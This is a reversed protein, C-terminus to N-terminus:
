IKKNKNNIISVNGSSDIKYVKDGLNIANPLHSIQIVIKNKGLECITEQLMKENKSDLANTSEDFIYVDHDKILARAIALRQRQGGSLNGGRESLLTKYGSSTSLIFEHILALKSAKIVDDKTASPNGLKINDYFSGQFLENDQTIYAVRSRLSKKNFININENNISIKGKDIELLMLLLSAITSKGCGSPGTIVNVGRRFSLNLDRFVFKNSAWSFHVNEFKIETIKKNILLGNQLDESVKKKFIRKHVSEVNAMGQNFKMTQKSLTSFVTSLRGALVALLTFNPLTNSIQNDGKTSFLLLTIVGASVFFYRFFPSPVGKSVGFALRVKAYNILDLNIKELPYKYANYIKIQKINIISESIISSISQNYKVLKRGREVSKFIGFYKLIGLFIFSTIILILTPYFNSALLGIVLFISLLVNETLQILYLIVEGGLKTENSITEVLKGTREESISIYPSILLDSLIKKTWDKRLIVSLSISQHLLLITSCFSLSLFILLLIGLKYINLSSINLFQFFNNILFTTDQINLSKEGSVLATLPQVLSITILEIFSSILVLFLIIIMKKDRHRILQILKNIALLFDKINRM